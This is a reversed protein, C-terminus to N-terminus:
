YYKHILLSRCHNQTTSPFLLKIIFVPMKYIRKRPTNIICDLTRYKTGCVCLIDKDLLPNLTSYTYSSTSHFRGCWVHVNSIIIIIFLIMRMKNNKEVRRSNRIIRKRMRTHTHHVELTIYIYEIYMNMYMYVYLVCVYKVEQHKNNTGENRLM